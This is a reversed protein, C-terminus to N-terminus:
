KFTISDIWQIDDDTIKNLLIAGCNDHRHVYGKVTPIPNHYISSDEYTDLFAFSSDELHCTNPAFWEGGLCEYNLYDIQENIDLFIKCQDNDFVLQDFALM